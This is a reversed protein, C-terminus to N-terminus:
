DSALAKRGAFTMRAFWAHPWSYASIDIWLLGLRHLDEARSIESDEVLYGEGKDTFDRVKELFARAEPTLHGDVSFQRIPRDSM